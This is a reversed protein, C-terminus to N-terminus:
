YASIIMFFIFSMLNNVMMANGMQTM